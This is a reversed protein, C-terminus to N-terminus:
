EGANQFRLHKAFHRDLKSTHNVLWDLVFIQIRFCLFERGSSFEEDIEQKLRSFYKSFRRHQAEQEALFPYGAEKMYEEEANFHEHVYKDLFAIVSEIHSASPSHRVAEVFENVCAFLERHQRDITPNGITLDPTWQVSLAVEGTGEHIGTELFRRCRELYIAAPKDDPCAAICQSLLSVAKPIDKLHYCALAEEYTKKTTQKAKQQEPLDADFVEYVSQPRDKGKVRVRDAFRINYESPDKLGYYTHESILLGVGYTKTMREIRSALNVADSIVTNDLRSETGVTGLIALGTNLGIGISISSFGAIRREENYKRLSKQMAIAAKVADDANTPFLAMISDGIYKDIIGHFQAIAPAMRELYENIFNFNQHPNMAESLTTFNRIDAFLFSMSRETNDGLKIETVSDKGLLHLIQHPVFRDYANMITEHASDHTGNEPVTGM